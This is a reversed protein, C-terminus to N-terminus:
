QKKEVTCVHTSNADSHIIPTHLQTTYCKMKQHQHRKESKSLNGAVDVGMFHFHKRTVARVNDLMPTELPVYLYTMCQFLKGTRIHKILFKFNSILPNKM